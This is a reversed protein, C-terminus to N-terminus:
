REPRRESRVLGKAARRQGGESDVARTHPRYVVPPRGPEPAPAAASPYPSHAGRREAFWCAIMLALALDDNQGARWAGYAEDGTETVKLQFQELERTLTEAEPLGRAIAIRRSQLVAQLVSVLARKAIHWGDQAYTTAFGATILVPWIPIALNARRYCDRALDVVGAGVGTADVALPCGALPPRTLLAGVERCIEPYPTGLPWRCLWRCVHHLQPEAAGARVATSELVALASPDSQKGLDLGAIFTGM